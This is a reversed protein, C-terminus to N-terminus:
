TMLRVRHLTERIAGLAVLRITEGQKKTKKKM